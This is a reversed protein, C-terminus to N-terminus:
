ETHRRLVQQVEAIFDHADSFQRYVSAFRVYAIQDLDFLHDMVIQGLEVSAIENVQEFKTVVEQEVKAILSELQESSVPRKWCARKLGNRIKETQFLERTGNRKVVKIDVEAIREYTTYRRDCNLCHRRRRIVFGAEGSRSDIVKDNDRRCFPCKM